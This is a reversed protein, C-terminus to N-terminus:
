FSLLPFDALLGLCICLLEEPWLWLNDEKPRNKRTSEVRWTKDVSTQWGKCCPNNQRPELPSTVRMSPKWIHCGRSSHGRANRLGKWQHQGLILDQSSEWMSLATSSQNRFITPMTRETWNYFCHMNETSYKSFEFFYPPSFLSRNHWLEIM